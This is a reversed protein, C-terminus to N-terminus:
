GAPMSSPLPEVLEPTAVTGTAIRSGRPRPEGARYTAGEISSVRGRRDPAVVEEIPDVDPHGLDAATTRPSAPNLLADIV